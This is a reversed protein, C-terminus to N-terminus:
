KHLRRRIIARKLKRAILRHSFNLKLIKLNRNVWLKRKRKNDIISITEQIDEPKISFESLAQVKFNYKLLDQMFVPYTYVIPILGSAMVELLNNGFGEIESFYTSIGDLTAFVRPFEEFRFEKSKFDENFILFCTDIGFEKRLKRDLRKLKAKTDDASHGSIFFYIAKYKKQKRLENLLEYCYRLAFDIRKRELIRTHQLVFLVDSLSLNKQTLFNKINYVELFKDLRESQKFNDLDEYSDIFIDTTNYIVDHNQLVGDYFGPKQSDLELLYNKADAFQMSNIFLIYEVFRGPVGQLLYRKVDPSPNKFHDRELHSDHWWLIYKPTKKGQKECDAYYRSLAVSLIFNVPHCTNHAIIIDIKYKAIFDSIVKKAKSIDSEIEESREGGYGDKFWNVMQRNTKHRLSLLQNRKINSGHVKSRGVLYFINEKPIELSKIMVSEIQRMVISVGDIPTLQSHLMAYKLSSIQQKSFRSQKPLQSKVSKSKKTPVSDEVAM